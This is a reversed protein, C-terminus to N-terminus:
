LHWRQPKAAIQRDYTRKAREIASEWSSRRLVFQNPVVTVPHGLSESVHQSAARNMRRVTIATAFVLGVLAFASVALPAWLFAPGRGELWIGCILLLAAAAGDVQLEIYGLAALRAADPGVLAAVEQIRKVHRQHCHRILM